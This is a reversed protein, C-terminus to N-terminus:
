QYVTELLDERLLAAYVDQINIEKLNRGTARFDIRLMKCALEIILSTYSTEIDMMHALTELPVLGYPVDELIYRHHLTSPSDIDDYVETRSIVDYLSEGKVYKTHYSRHFWETV